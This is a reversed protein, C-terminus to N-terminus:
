GKMKQYGFFGFIAVIAVLAMVGLITGANGLQGTANLLFTETNNLILWAPKSVNTETAKFSNLLIATIALSILGVAFALAVNVWANGRKNMKM